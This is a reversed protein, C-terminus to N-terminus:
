VAACPCPPLLPPLCDACPSAALCPVGVYPPAGGGQRGFLGGRPDGGKSGSVGGRGDGVRVEAYNGAEGGGVAEVAEVLGVLLADAAEWAGREVHLDLVARAAAPTPALGQALMNAFADM